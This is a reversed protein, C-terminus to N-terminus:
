APRIRLPSLGASRGTCCAVLTAIYMLRFVALASPRVTGSENSARASSAISYRRVTCTTQQVQERGTKACIPLALVRRRHRSEPTIRVSYARQSGKLKQGVLSMRPELSECRLLM